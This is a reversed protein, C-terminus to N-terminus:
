VIFADPRNRIFQKFGRKEHGIIFTRLGPNNITKHYLRAATYTSVGLQRAKLIIVRVKGTKARQEEILEHLVKQSHNLVFPEILGGKPRIKLAHECFYPLDARLRDAHDANEITKSLWTM